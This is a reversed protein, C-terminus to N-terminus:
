DVHCRSVVLNAAQKSLRQGLRDEGATLDSKKHPLSAQM